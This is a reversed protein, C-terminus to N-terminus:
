CTTDHSQQNQNSADELRSTDIERFVAWPLRIEAFRDEM